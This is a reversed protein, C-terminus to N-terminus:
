LELLNATEDSMGYSDTANIKWTWNGIDAANHLSTLTVTGNVCDDCTDYDTMTWPGGGTEDYEWLQVTLIDDDDTVNVYFSFM